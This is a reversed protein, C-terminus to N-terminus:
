AATRQGEHADSPLPHEGTHPNSSQTATIIAVGALIVAAAVLTRAGIPESAFAWGLLVAIVPNVYAYTAAKAASVKALLYIYATFGIAGAIILYVWALVSKQSMDRVSLDRLEGFLAAMIVMAAGGVLMQMALSLVASRPRESGRTIISGLAWSMSGLVVVGAAVVDVNAAGFIAGPGILLVIGALGLALGIFVSPRPRVGRPRLWDFLVMWLPVTAVILAVIGSAVTQESFVLSGNGFAIMLVGTIAAIRLEDRTPKAAGGRAVAVLLMAAGAILFRTGGMLFPPMTEIAYKIALYTSGWLLYVTAFAVLIRTRNRKVIEAPTM